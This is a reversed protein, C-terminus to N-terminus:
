NLEYNNVKGSCVLERKYIPHYITVKVFINDLLYETEKENFSLNSFFARKFIDEM